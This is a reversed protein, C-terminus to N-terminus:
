DVEGPETGPVLDSYCRSEFDRSKIGLNELIHAMLDKSSDEEERSSIVVEVEVFFSDPLSRVRDLHIRANKYFWLIRTKEVVNVLRLAGSTVFTRRFVDIDKTPVIFKDYTSEREKAENRRQYRNVYCDLRASGSSLWTNIAGLVNSKECNAIGIDFRSETRIKLRSGDTTAYYEDKQDLVGRFYQPIPNPDADSAPASYAIKDSMMLKTVADRMEGMKFYLLDRDAFDYRAKVEYNKFAPKGAGEEEEEEEEEKREQSAEM